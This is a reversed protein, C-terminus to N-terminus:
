KSKQSYSTKKGVEGIKEILAGEISMHIDEDSLRFVFEGRVIEEAIQELGKIISEYEQSDLIGCSCLMQAHAKSGQIDQEWLEKDFMISANFEDLLANSNKSFRGAWLKAM